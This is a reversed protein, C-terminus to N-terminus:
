SSLDVVMADSIDDPWMYFNIDIEPQLVTPAEAVAGKGAKGKKKLAAEALVAAAEALEDLLDQPLEIPWGGQCLVRDSIGGELFLGTPVVRTWLLKEEAITADYMAALEEETFAAGKKKKAPAAPPKKKGSPVEEEAPEPKAEYHIRRQIFQITLGEGHNLADRLKNDVSFKLLFKCSFAMTGEQWQLFQSLIGNESSNYGHVLIKLGFRYEDPPKGPEDAVLVAPAPMDRISSFDILLMTKDNDVLPVETIETTNSKASTDRHKSKASPNRDKSKESTAASSKREPLDCTMEGSSSLGDISKQDTPSVKDESKVLKKNEASREEVKVDDLLKLKWLKQVFTSRYGKWLCVPNGALVM